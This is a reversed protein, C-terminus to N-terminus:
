KKGGLHLSKIKDMPTLLKNRDILFDDKLDIVEHLYPIEGLPAKKSSLFAFCTELNKLTNINKSLYNYKIKSINQVEKLYIIFFLSLIISIKDINTDVFISDNRFKVLWNNFIESFLAFDTSKEFICGDLDCFVIEGNENVLINNFSCDSLIINKEHIQNLGLSVKNLLFFLDKVNFYRKNFAFDLEKYNKYYKTIYGVLKDEDMIFKLPFAVNELNIGEMNLFKYQINKIEEQSLNKLIKYFYKGDEYTDSFKGQNPLYKLDKFNIDRYKVKEM